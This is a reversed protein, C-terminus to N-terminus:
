DRWYQIPREAPLHTTLFDNLVKLLIYPSADSQRAAWSGASLHHGRAEDTLVGDRTATHHAGVRRRLV